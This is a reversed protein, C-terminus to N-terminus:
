APTVMICRCGTMQCLNALKILLKALFGFPLAQDAIYAFFVASQAGQPFFQTLRTQLFACGIPVPKTPRPSRSMFRWGSSKEQAQIDVGIAPSDFHFRRAHAEPSQHLAENFIKASYKGM